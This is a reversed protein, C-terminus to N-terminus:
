CNNIPESVQYLGVENDRREKAYPIRIRFTSGKGITSSVDIEGGLQKIIGYCIALGLGTGKGSPKTTFFPDFIRSLNDKSIGSGNDSVRIVVNNDELQASISIMEGKKETADIANNLLNILVQQLEAPSGKIAPLNDQIDSNIVVGNNKARKESITITDQILQKIQIDQVRSDTKRAFSLLKHTIERCRKGQTRIQKLARRFEPLNESERFGEEELLDDIWGAEEVMIAVPNNIEHAVGAALEGISALKGTQFMQENLKQKERDAQAIRQVMMKSLRFANIGILVCVILVVALAVGNARNLGSFVESVKQQYILLWDDGKFKTIGYINEHGSDDTGQVITIEDGPNKITNLLEGIVSEGPKIDQVTGAQYLGDRDIIFFSGAEAMGIRAIAQNLAEYDVDDPNRNIFDDIDAKGKQVIKFLHGHIEKKFSVHFQYYIAGSALIMPVLPVIIGILLISKMLSRYDNGAGMRTKTRRSAAKQVVPEDQRNSSDKPLYKIDKAM